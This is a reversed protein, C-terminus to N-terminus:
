FDANVKCTEILLQQVLICLILCFHFILYLNVQGCITVAPFEISSIPLASTAVTTVVQNNQWDM